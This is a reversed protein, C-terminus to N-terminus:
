EPVFKKRCVEVANSWMKGGMGVNSSAVIFFYVIVCVRKPRLGLRAGKQPCALSFNM